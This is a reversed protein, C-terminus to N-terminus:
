RLRGPFATMHRLRELPIMQQLKTVTADSQTKLLTQPVARAQDGGGVSARYSDPFKVSQRASAPGAM